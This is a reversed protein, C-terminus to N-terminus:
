GLMVALDELKTDRAVPDDESCLDPDYELYKEALEMLKEREDIISSSLQQARAAFESVAELAAAPTEPRDDVKQATTREGRM